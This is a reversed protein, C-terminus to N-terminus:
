KGGEIMKWYARLRRERQWAALAELGALVFVSVVCGIIIGAGIAIGIDHDTYITQMDAGKSFLRM